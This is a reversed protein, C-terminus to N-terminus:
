YGIPMAKEKLQRITVMKVILLDCKKEKKDRLFSNGHYYFKKKEEDPWYACGGIGKTIQKQPTFPQKTYRRLLQKQIIPAGSNLTSKM